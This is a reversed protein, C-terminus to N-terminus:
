GDELEKKVEELSVLPQGYAEAKAERLLRIDELDELLEQIQLYEEYPIVVFEKRGDKELIQAHMNM